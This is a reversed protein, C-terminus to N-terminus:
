LPAPFNLILSFIFCIILCVSAVTMWLSRPRLLLRSSMLLFLSFLCLIISLVTTVIKLWLIGNAAAILFVVFLALAILIVLTNFREFQKFRRNNADM